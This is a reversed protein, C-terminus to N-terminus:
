APILRSIWYRQRTTIEECLARTRHHEIVQFMRGRFRFVHGAPQDGLMPANEGKEQRFARTLHADRSSSAAPNQMHKRVATLIPEAFFPTDLIPEMLGQFAQKWEFGHAAFRTKEQIMRKQIRHHAVEHLYTMAFHSPSLDRNLRIKPGKAPHFLYYGFSSKQPPTISLSFPDEEWVEVLYPIVHAHVHKALVKTLMEKM